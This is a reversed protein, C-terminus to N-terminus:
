VSLLSSRRHFCLAVGPALSDFMPREVLENRVRPIRPRMRVRLDRLDGGADGLETEVVRDQHIGFAADDGPVAPEKGGPLQLELLHGDNNQVVEGFRLLARVDDRVVLERQVGAPVVVSSRASSAARCSSSKLTRSM